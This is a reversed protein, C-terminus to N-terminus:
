KMGRMWNYDNEGMNRIMEGEPDQGSELQSVFHSNILLHDFTPGKYHHAQPVPQLKNRM